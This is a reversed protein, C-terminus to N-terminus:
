PLGGHRRGRPSDARRLTTPMDWASAPAGPGALREPTGCGWACSAPRPIRVGLIGGGMDTGRGVGLPGGAWFRAEGRRRRLADRGACLARAARRGPGGEELQAPRLDSGCSPHPVLSRGGAWPSGGDRTSAGGRGTLGQGHGRVGVGERGPGPSPSPFGSSRPARSQPAAVFM